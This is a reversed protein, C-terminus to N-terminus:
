RSQTTRCVGSAGDKKSELVEDPHPLPSEEAQDNFMAADIVGSMAVIASERWEHIVTEVQGWDGSGVSASRTVELLESCLRQLDDKEYIKLWSMGGTPSEGGIASHVASLAEIAVHIVNVARVLQAAQDRRLLAFQENNRSITV